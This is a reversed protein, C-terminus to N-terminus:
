RREHNWSVEEAALHAALFRGLVFFLDSLRNLYRPALDRLEESEALQWLSREARRCVTRAMHSWAVPAPGGPLIFERLPPLSANADNTATEVEILADDHLLVEGPMSLEGGLNFLQQSISALLRDIDDPLGQGRWVGIVANLEDVDGIAAIRPSTKAVRAQGALGTSGADGTRTTIKSLRNAM